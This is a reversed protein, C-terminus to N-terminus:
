WWVATRRREVEEVRERARSGKASIDSQSADAREARTSQRQRHRTRTQTQMIDTRAERSIFNNASVYRTWPEFSPNPNPLPPQRVYRKLDSVGGLM